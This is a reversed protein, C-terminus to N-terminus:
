FRSFQSLKVLEQLVGPRRRAMYVCAWLYLHLGLVAASIVRGIGRGESSKQNGLGETERESTKWHAQRKAESSFHQVPDHVLTEKRHYPHLDGHHVLHCNEGRSKSHIKFEEAHCVFGQSRAEAERGEGRKM